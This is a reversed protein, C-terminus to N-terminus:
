GYDDEEVPASVSEIILRIPGCPALVEVEDGARRGYLAHALPTVSSIRNAMIDAEAPHVLTYVDAEGTMPDRVTVTSGIAVKEDNLELLNNVNTEKAV